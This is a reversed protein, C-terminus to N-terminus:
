QSLHSLEATFEAHPVDEQEIMQANAVVLGVIKKRFCVPRVRGHDCYPELDFPM